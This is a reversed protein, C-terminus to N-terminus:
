VRVQVLAHSGDTRWSGSEADLAAVTPEDVGVLVDSKLVRLAAVPGPLQVVDALPTSPPWEADGVLKRYNLDGKVVVLDAVDLEADLERPRDRLELPACWFMDAEVRLRGEGAASRLRDAAAGAGTSQLAGLCDAFDRVTADSVFYPLPKLHLTVSSALGDALLRDVLLLDAVLERGANDCVWAVALGGQDLLEWFRPTDDVVLAHEAARRASEGAVLQFGLDAQNGWVAARLLADRDLRDPPAPLAPLQGLEAVKLPAFPDVNRWPGPEVFQVADLLRRYFWAEAVLFPVEVFSRGRHPELWTAWAARGPWRRDDDPAPPPLEVPGQLVDDLLADLRALQEPGYPHAARVQKIIAPHRHELVSRAFSGPEPTITPVADRDAAPNRDTPEQV